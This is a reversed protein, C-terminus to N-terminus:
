AGDRPSFKRVNFTIADIRDCRWAQEESHTINLLHYDALSM